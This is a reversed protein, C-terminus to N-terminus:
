QRAYIKPISFIDLQANPASQAMGLLVGMPPRIPPQSLVAVTRVSPIDRIASKASVSQVTSNSATNMLKAASEKTTSSTAKQANFATAM